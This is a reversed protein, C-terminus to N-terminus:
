RIAFLWCGIKWSLQPLVETNIRLCRVYKAVPSNALRELHDLHKPIWGIPVVKFLLPTIVDCIDRNVERLRFLERRDTSRAIEILLEVPFQDMACIAFM